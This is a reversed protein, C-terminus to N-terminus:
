NQSSQDKLDQGEYIMVLKKRQHMSRHSILCSKRTFYKGCESCSFLKQNGHIKEHSVLGRKVAFQRGCQLCSYPKEGTHTRRHDVLHSKQTFCRGCEMCSFTRENTHIRQHRVLSIKHGFCIGCEPCSFWKGGTHSRLHSTLHSKHTYCRGCISCTFPKLDLHVKEHRLVHAKQTFCKGCEACPFKKPRRQPTHHTTLPSHDPFYGWHTSPDSSLEANHLVPLFDPALSNVEPYDTTFDDEKEGSIALIPHKELTNRNFRGGTSITPPIEEDEDFQEVCRAYMEEEDIPEAKIVIQDEGYVLNGDDNVSEAEDEQCDQPSGEQHDESTIEPSYQPSTWREPSSGNNSVDPSALPQQNEMMVDKYLDKHGELYQWEEMSFYVTVDECRIPVEGTLLEIMESTVEQVKKTNKRLSYSPPDIVPSQTKMLSSAVLGDSLKFAIYNEGTLLYIMDLTLNLIRETMKNMEKGMKQPYTM